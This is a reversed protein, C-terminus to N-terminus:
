LAAELTAPFQHRAAARVLDRRSIVGVVRDHLVVPLSKLPTRCFLEAVQPLPEDASVSWVASSMADRVLEHDHPSTQRLCRMVDAEGVVGVLRGDADLVPLSTVDHRDLRRVAMALLDHPGVTVAPSTMVDRVIPM